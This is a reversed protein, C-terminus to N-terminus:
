KMPAILLPPLDEQTFAMSFDNYQEAQVPVATAEPTDGSYVMFTEAFPKM